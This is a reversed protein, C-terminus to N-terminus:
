SPAQVLRWHRKCNPCITNGNGNNNKTIMQNPGCVCAITESSDDIIYDPPAPPARLEWLAM